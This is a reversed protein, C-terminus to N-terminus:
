TLRSDGDESYLSLKFTINGKIKSDGVEIGASLTGDPDATPLAILYIRGKPNAERYEESLTAKVVISEKNSAIEVSKIQTADDADSSCSVAFFACFVLICAVFISTLYGKRNM